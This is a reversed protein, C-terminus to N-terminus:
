VARICLSIATITPRMSHPCTQITHIMFFYIGYCTIIVHLHYSVSIGRMGHQYFAVIPDLNGRSTALLVAVLYHTSLTNWVSM